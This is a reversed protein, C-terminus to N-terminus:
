QGSPAADRGADTITEIYGVTRNTEKFTKQAVRLVDAASVKEIREVSRFVDRWDGTLTEYRSMNFALGQNGQLSRVLDAKARAKVRKLEDASVEETALRDIETRMAEQVEENTHGKAPVAFALFLGPYKEGPFGNFSQTFAATQSDRVLSRYLRSTRGGGLITAIAEYVEHDPDTIAPVHYGEIYLPQSPDKLKVIREGQQEPEVTRVPPPEPGGPVRDFYADIIKIAEAPDVDGVLTTVMSSPVYHTKFFEHADTASFSNLDSMHGVVPQGYPHATFAAMLFQEIMRGIPQSETRMRREEKVVDREKYFQRYVPDTFRASELYAWLELKNSPLSYFYITSDSNTGANLGVGGQRDIIDDFENKKIFAEAAEQADKWAKELEATRAADADHRRRYEDYALWASEVNQLAKAEAKYNSTGIVSTGKFAMHEFMHALGTIGPVEQAGGADVVTAFTFVPAGERPVILFTWGNDLKHEVVRKEFDALSQARAEDAAAVVCVALLAALLVRAAPIHRSRCVRSM